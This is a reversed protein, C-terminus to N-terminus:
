PQNDSREPHVQFGPQPARRSREAVEVDSGTMAKQLLNWDRTVDSESAKPPKGRKLEDRLRAVLLEQTFPEPADNALINSGSIGVSVVDEGMPIRLIPRGQADLDPAANHLLHRWKELRAGSMEASPDAVLHNLESQYSRRDEDGLPPEM